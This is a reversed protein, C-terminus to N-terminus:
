ISPPAVPWLIIKTGVVNDGIGNIKLRKYKTVYDMANM